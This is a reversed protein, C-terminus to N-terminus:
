GKRFFVQSNIQAQYICIFSETRILHCFFMSPLVHAQKRTPPHRCRCCAITLLFRVCCLDFIDAFLKCINLKFSIRGLFMALSLTQRICDTCLAYPFVLSISIFFKFTRYFNSGCSSQRTLQCSHYEYNSSHDVPPLVICSHLMVTCYYHLSPPGKAVHVFSSCNETM